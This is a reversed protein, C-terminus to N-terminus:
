ELPQKQGVGDWFWKPHSVSAFSIAGTAQERAEAPALDPRLALIAALAANFAPPDPHGCRREARYALCAARWAEVALEPAASPSAPTSNM